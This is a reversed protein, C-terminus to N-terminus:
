TAFRRWYLLATPVLPQVRYAPPHELDIAFSDKDKMDGEAMNM